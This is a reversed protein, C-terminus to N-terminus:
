PMELFTIKKGPQRRPNKGKKPTSTDKPQSTQHKMLNSRFILRRWARKCAEITIMPPRKDISCTGRGCHRHRAIWRYGLRLLKRVAPARGALSLPRAWWFHRSIELVADAGGYVKGDRTVLRMEALLEENTLALKQRVWPTQLPILEFRHAALLARFRRALTTCFRCDADYVVWGKAEKADTVETNM